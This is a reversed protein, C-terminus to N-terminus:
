SKIRRYKILPLLYNVNSRSVCITSSNHTNLNFNFHLIEKPIASIFDDVCYNEQKHFLGLQQCM